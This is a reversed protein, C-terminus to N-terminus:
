HNHSDSGQPQGMKSESHDHIDGTTQQQHSDGHGETSTQQQCRKMMAVMVTDKADMKGHESNAMAECNPKEAKVAHQSPDHANVASACFLSALLIAVSYNTNKM